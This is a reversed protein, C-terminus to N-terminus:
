WLSMQRVAEGFSGGHLQMYEIVQNEKATERADAEIANTINDRRHQQRILCADVDADRFAVFQGDGLKIVQSLKAEWDYQGNKDVPNLKALKNITAKAMSELLEDVSTIASLSPRGYKRQHEALVMDMTYTGSMNCVIEDLEEQVTKKTYLQQVSASM